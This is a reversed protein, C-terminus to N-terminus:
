AEAGSRRSRTLPVAGFYTGNAQALAARYEDALRRDDRFGLLMGGATIAVAAAVAAAVALPQLLSRRRRPAPPLISGLVGLEFGIPPEQEPALALM